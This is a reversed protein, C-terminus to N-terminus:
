GSLSVFVDENIPNGDITRATVRVEFHNKGHGMTRVALLNVSKGAPLKTLPLEDGFLHFNGAESPLELNLDFADETGRNIIQLRGNGKGRDHYHLDFHVRKVSSAPPM